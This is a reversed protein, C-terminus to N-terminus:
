TKKAHRVGMLDSNVNLVRLTNANKVHLWIEKEMRKTWCRKAILHPVFCYIMTKHWRHIKSSSKLNKLVNRRKRGQYTKSKMFPLSPTVDLSPVNLTLIDIRIKLLHGTINLSVSEAFHTSAHTLCLLNHIKMKLITIMTIAHAYQVLSCKLYWLKLRILILVQMSVRFKSKM